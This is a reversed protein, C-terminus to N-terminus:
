VVVHDAIEPGAVGATVTEHGLMRHLPEGTVSTYAEDGLMTVARGEPARKNKHAHRQFTEFTANFPLGRQTCAAGTKLSGVMAFGAATWAVQFCSNADTGRNPM